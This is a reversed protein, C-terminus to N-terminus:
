CFTYFSLQRSYFADQIATKPLPHVQQLDFCFTSTSPPNERALTYFQSARLKHIRLETLIRSKNSAVTAMKYANKLRVCTGCVDSAPSKFGINFDSNFIRNFMAFSVKFQDSVSQNYLRCLKQITLNCALYIRKSKNRSYHSESAPLKRIFERVREKKFKSKNSVRDGGRNEKPINGSHIAKAVSNIRNKTIGIACTFFKQCVTYTSASSAVGPVKIHYTIHFNKPKKRNAHTDIRGRRRQPEAVGLMHCLKIDQSIKGPNDYFKKRILKLQSISILNCKFTSNNHNCLRKFNKLAPDKDAYRCRFCLSFITNM